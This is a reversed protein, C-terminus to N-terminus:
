RLFQLKKLHTLAYWIAQDTVSTCGQLSLVRLNKCGTHGFSELPLSHNKGLFVDCRIMFHFREHYQNPQVYMGALFRIGKETIKHCNDVNLEELKQCYRALLYMLKDSAIYAMNVQSLESLRPFSDVM